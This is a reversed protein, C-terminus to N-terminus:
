RKRYQGAKINYSKPGADAGRDFLYVLILGAVFGGIHAGYAVGDSQGGLMGLGYIFQFLIWTGLVMVLRMRLPFWGLLVTVKRSPFLLLNGGLVGSIAGSAGVMPILATDPVLYVSFVHTLAALLGCSLYFFLYGIHGMRNELNDGFVMLYLMNGLLHFWSGHMFMSTVLTFYVPIPTPQLGPIDFRRGTFEDLVTTPSTVIDSGSLIEAPVAAYAYTFLVNAGGQQLWAFVLMNLAIFGYNVLPFTHRDSNDDAIPTFM